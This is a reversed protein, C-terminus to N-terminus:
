PRIVITIGKTVTTIRRTKTNKSLKLKQGFSGQIVTYLCVSGHIFCGQKVRSKPGRRGEKQGKRKTSELGWTGNHLSWSLHHRFLSRSYVRQLHFSHSHVKLETLASNHSLHSSLGVVKRNRKMM